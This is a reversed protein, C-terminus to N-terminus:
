LGITSPELGETGIIRLLYSVLRYLHKDRLVACVAQLVSCTSSYCNTYPALPYCAQQLAPSSRELRDACIMGRRWITLCRIKTEIIAPEFGAPATLSVAREPTFLVKSLAARLCNAVFRLAFFALYGEPNIAPFIPLSSDDSYVTLRYATM